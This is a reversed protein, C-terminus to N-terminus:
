ILGKTKATMLLTAASNTGLKNNINKRHTEVTYESISLEGAIKSNTYGQSILNLIQVERNTLEKKDAM